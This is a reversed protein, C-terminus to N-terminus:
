ARGFVRKRLVAVAILGLGVFATSPEPVASAPTVTATIVTEADPAASVVHATPDTFPNGSWYEGTVIVDGSEVLGVTANSDLGLKLLGLFGTYAQTVIDSPGVAPYDFLVIPTGEGFAPTSISTPLFWLTASDNFISYGWGLSSGPPGSLSGTPSATLVPGAHAITGLFVLMGLLVIAKKTMTNELRRHM